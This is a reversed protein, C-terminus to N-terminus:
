EMKSLWERKLLSFMVMDFHRSDWYMWDRIFSINATDEYDQM